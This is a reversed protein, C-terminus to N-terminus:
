AGAFVQITISQITTVEERITIRLRSSYFEPTLTWQCAMPGDNGQCTVRTPEIGSPIRLVIEEIRVPSDFRVRLRQRYEPSLEELFHISGLCATSFLPAHFETRKEPLSPAIRLRREPINLELGTLAYLLPWIALAEAPNLPEKCCSEALALGEEACGWRVWLCALLLPSFYPASSDPAPLISKAEQKWQERLTDLSRMVHHPPFLPGLELVDAYWQGALAVADCHMDGKPLRRCYAGTTENWFQLDFQKAAKIALTDFHSAKRLQQLIRALLSAARLAACWVSASMMELHQAPSVSDEPLGDDDCHQALIKEMSSCLLPWLSQIRALNGTFCYARYVSLVREACALVSDEGSDSGTAFSPLDPVEAGALRRLAADEFRPFFLQLAMSAHMRLIAGGMGPADCDEIFGFAGQRTLMSHTSFYALSEILMRSFWVPLTSNSLRQQWGEVSAFYYEIFKLGQFAAEAAGPFLNTYGNGYDVEDVVFRPCHWALVFDARRNEGPNLRFSGGVAGAHPVGDYGSSLRLRGTGEFAQWFAARQAPDRPNWILTDLTMGDRPRLALCYGGDANDATTEGLGFLLANPLLRAEHPAAEEQVLDKRIAESTDPQKEIDLRAPFIRPPLPPADRGTCGCLNEWQFAVSVDLAEDTQNQVRVSLFFVPLTSAEHDFPIIPSFATMFVEAPAAADKLRYHSMPYLGRWALKHQPLRPLGSDYNRAERAQLLTAYVTAGRAIRIAVYSHPSVAIRDEPLRNNNIGIHRFRGDAGIYLVGAGLGGLSIGQCPPPKIADHGTM